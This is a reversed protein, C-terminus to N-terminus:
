SPWVQMQMSKHDHALTQGSDRQMMIVGNEYHPGLNLSKILILDVPGCEKGLQLYLVEKLERQQESSGAMLSLVAGCEAACVALVSAGKAELCFSLYPQLGAVSTQKELVRLM